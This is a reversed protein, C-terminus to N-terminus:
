NVVNNMHMCQELSASYQSALVTRSAASILYRVATAAPYQRLGSVIITCVQTMFCFLRLSILPHLFAIFNDHSM